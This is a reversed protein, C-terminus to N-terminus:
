KGPESRDAEAHEASPVLAFSTQLPYNCVCGVSFDPVNLLGDAAILSNSCGSRVAYLDQKKGNALDIYSASQDRFMMLHPGAVAYNCGGKGFTLPPGLRKGTRVDCPQGQQTLFKTDCLIMPWGGIPEHWRLTGSQADFAYTEGSKGALLIGAERCYGLSDDNDRIGVTHAQTDAYNRNATAASWRTKGSRADLAWVTSPQPVEAPKADGGGRKARVRSPSEVCFLMGDGLVLAHYHFGPRAPRNWLLGGDRRELAVLSVGEWLHGWESLSHKATTVAIVDGAVRIATAHARGGPEVSLPFSRLCRGTAPDLVTCRDMGALYVGDELSACRSARDIKTTWLLRGTYVDYAFLEGSRQAFLRGGVVEPKIGTNYDHWNWVGQEPGDGYWLVELPPRVRDDRSYYSSACDAYEHTWPASQPLPGARRIMVAGATREVQAGSLEPGASSPPLTTNQPLELYLTGGYPRLVGFWRRVLRGARQEDGASFKALLLHALYPPFCFEEPQGCFVEARQGYLGAAVLRERLRNVRQADADVAILKLRSDLLLQEALGEPALGALVCYGQTAGTAKLIALAQPKAGDGGPLSARLLPYNKVQGRPVGLCAIRGEQTVVFLRGDAALLEAATGDLPQQWAIKPRAQGGVPLDVATLVGGSHAYLRRGARIIASDAPKKAALSTALQWLLPPDWRWPKLGPGLPSEYESLVAHGLDRALFVGECIDYAVDGALASRASCGPFLKYPFLTAEFLHAKAYEEPGPADKGASAWRSNVERRTRLDVVGDRGVFAYNGALAVRCDGNRYGQIYDVLRGTQRDHISPMSRGNPVLLTDGMASLYGQPSLGSPHFVNHDLRVKPLYGIEVNRWRIAGTRSDVAVISVGMTPWIGAAFYVAGDAVVPAGRIPWWSILRNNGLHRRDAKEPSVGRVKWLLKGDRLQLCYLWGDDSGFYVRGGAAAPAFRVPGESFFRWCREGSATDFATVSGDNPSGLVLLNDAVIPEYCADFGLRPEYPWAPTVAPLQRVWQLRLDAPLDEACTGSRRVDGRWTPWDGAQVFTDWCAIASAAVLLLLHCRKM